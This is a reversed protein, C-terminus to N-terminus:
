IIVPPQTPKLIPDNEGGRVCIMEENSLVFATFTEKTLTSNLTKM